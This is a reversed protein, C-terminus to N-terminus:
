VAQDIKFIKNTFNGLAAKMEAITKGSVPHVLDGAIHSLPALVFAREHMRAHPITLEPTDMVIDDYFLIDVDIIRPGYQLGKKRGMSREISKAKDLVEQPSLETEVSCATNMFLPQGPRYMPESEYVPAVRRLRLEPALLKKALEINAERNGLNTGLGLYVLAM